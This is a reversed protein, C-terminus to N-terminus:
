GPSSRRATPPTSWWQTAMPGSTFWCMTSSAARENCILGYRVQGDKMTAVNNTFVRQFPWRMDPGGFCLRGMHSIDFLGAATRVAKHEEIIGSYQVPMDWGGFPVMAATHAVHWDYLPTRRNTM